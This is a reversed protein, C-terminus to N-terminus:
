WVRPLLRSRTRAAYACYDPGVNRYLTEEAFIRIVQLGIVLVSGIMTVARPNVIVFGTIMMAEALYIPHRVIRYPGSTVLERVEPHIAFNGGLTWGSAIALVAGAVSAWSAVLIAAPSPHFLLVGQPALLGLGTLLFTATVATIKVVRRDERVLAPPQALLAAIALCLFLAYNTGRACQAAITWNPERALLQLAHALDAVQWAVLFALAAAPLLRTWRPTTLSEPASTASRRKAEREGTVATATLRASHRTDTACNQSSGKVGSDSAIKVDTMMPERM